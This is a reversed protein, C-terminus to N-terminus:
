LRDGLIEIMKAEDFEALITGDIDFTPTILTGNNWKMVQQLAGEVSYIDVQTFSLKHEFFWKRAVECDACWKTCYM